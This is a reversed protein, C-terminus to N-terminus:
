EKKNKNKLKLCDEVVHNDKRCYKCFLRKDGTVAMAQKTHDSAVELSVAFVNPHISDKSVVGGGRLKKEHQLASDYAATISPLPKMM